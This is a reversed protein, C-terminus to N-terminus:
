FYKKERLLDRWPTNNPDAHELLRATNEADRISDALQKPTWTHALSGAVKTAQARVYMAAKQPDRADRIAKLYDM